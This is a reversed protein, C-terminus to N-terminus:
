TILTLYLDEICLNVRPRIWSKNLPSWSQNAWHLAASDHSHLSSLPDSAQRLARFSKPNEHSSICGGLDELYSRIHINHWPFCPWFMKLCLNIQTDFRKIQAEPHLRLKPRKGGGRRIRWFLQINRASLYICFLNNSCCTNDRQM